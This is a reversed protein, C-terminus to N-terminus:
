KKKLYMRVVDYEADTAAAFPKLQAHELLKRGADTDSWALMIKKIRDRVQKSVRPHAIFLSNPIAQTEGLVKFKVKWQAEFYRVPYAATGCVDINAVMLQHLCADHSKFYHFAVDNGVSIKQRILEMKTLHSVAASEPPLGIRK